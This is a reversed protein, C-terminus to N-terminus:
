DSGAKPTKATRRETPPRPGIPSPLTLEGLRRCRSRGGASTTLLQTDWTTCEPQAYECRDAFRCGLHPLDVLQPPSGVITELRANKDVAGPMSHLLAATYPHQPARILDETSGLEVIQGAYMVAVRDCTQAIVSLDHSIMVLSMQKESQLDLLLQLIQDQIVVDLATTPEDAVLLEPEGALAIAILVRQLMGGSFEHPYARMRSEPAPIGVQVMLELVRADREARRRPRHATVAEGIQDGIRRIPDLSTMPNQPILSVFSGWLAMRRKLPLRLVNQDSLGPYVVSGTSVSAATPLLGLLARCTVTKGSGTEGVVGLVEGRRVDLNVGDAPRVMGRDSPITVTLDRAAAIVDSREAPQTRTARLGGTAERRRREPSM